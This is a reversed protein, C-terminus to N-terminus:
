PHTLAALVDAPFMANFHVEFSSIGELVEQYVRLVFVDDELFTPHDVSILTAPHVTFSYSKCFPKSFVHPDGWGEMVVVVGSTMVMRKFIKANHAPLVLTNGSGNHCMHFQTVFSSSYTVWLRSLYGRQKVRNMWRSLYTVWLRSLYGRQKVRNMWRSLYTVWLRSSYGRQKVRNMWRSLYTLWLRSSYGRQKIRNM